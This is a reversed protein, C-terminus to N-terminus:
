GTKMLNATIRHWLPWVPSKEHKGKVKIKCKWWLEMETVSWNYIKWKVAKFITLWSELVQAASAKKQTSTWPADGQLCWLHMRLHNELSKLLTSSTPTSQHFPINIHFSSTSTSHPTTTLIHPTFFSIHTFFYFLLFSLFACFLRSFTFFHLFLAMCTFIAQLTTVQLAARGSCAYLWWYRPLDRRFSTFRSLRLLKRRRM